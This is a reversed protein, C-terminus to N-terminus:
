AVVEFALQVTGSYGLSATGDELSGSLNGRIGEVEVVYSGAETISYVRELGSETEQYFKTNINSTETLDTVQGDVVLQVQLGGPVLATANGEEDVPLSVTTEALQTNEETLVTTWLATADEYSALKPNTAILEEAHEAYYAKGADLKEQISAEYGDSLTLNDATTINELAQDMASQVEADAIHVINSFYYGLLDGQDIVDNYIYGLLEPVYLGYEPGNPESATMGNHIFGGTQTFIRLGAITDADLGTENLVTQLADSDVSEGLGSAISIIVLNDGEAEILQALGDVSIAAQESTSGDRENTVTATTMLEPYKDIANDAVNEVAALLRDSSELSYVTNSGLIVTNTDTDVSSVYLYTAREVNGEAIQSLVYYQAGLVVDEYAQAAAVAGSGAEGDADYRTAEGTEVAAEAIQNLNQIIVTYSNANWPVLIPDYDNTPDDDNNEEVAAVQAAYSTATDNAQIGILVDPRLAVSAGSDDAAMPGGGAISQPVEDDGALALGNEAAYFNYFYNWLYSDPNENLDSGFLGFFNQTAYDEETPNFSSQRITTNDLGLYYAAAEGAAHIAASAYAGTETQETPAVYTAGFAAPVIGAFLAAGAIAVVARRGINHKGFQAM